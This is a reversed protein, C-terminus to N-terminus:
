SALFQEDQLYGGHANASRGDAIAKDVPKDVHFTSLAATDFARNRKAPGARPMGQKPANSSAAPM